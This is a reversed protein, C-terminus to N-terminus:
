EWFGPEIEFLKKKEKLQFIEMLFIESWSPGNLNANFKLEFESRNWWVHFTNFDFVATSSISYRGALAFLLFFFSRQNSEWLDILVNIHCASVYVFSNFINNMTMPRFMQINALQAFIKANKNKNSNKNNSAVFIGVPITQVKQRARDANAMIVHFRSQKRKCALFFTINM